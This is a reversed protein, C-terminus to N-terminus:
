PASGAAAQRGHATLRTLFAAACRADVSAETGLLFSRSLAHRMLGAGAHPALPAVAHIVEHAVVRGLARGFADGERPALLGQDLGLTLRLSEHFVWVARMPEQAPMVLGLVRAPRRHDVPDRALLIVPVEPTAASGYMGGVRWSVEVGLGRFISRVEAALAPLGEQLAGSPDYWILSLDAPRPLDELSSAPPAGAFLPPAAPVDPEGEAAGVWSALLVLALLLLGGARVRTLGRGRVGASPRAPAARHRSALRASRLPQRRPRVIAGGM